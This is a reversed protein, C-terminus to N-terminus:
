WDFHKGVICHWYTRYRSDFKNKIFCAVEREGDFENMATRLLDVAYRKMEDEMYCRVVLIDSRRLGRM